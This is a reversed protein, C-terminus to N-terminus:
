ASFLTCVYGRNKNFQIFSVLDDISHNFNVAGITLQIDSDVSTIKVIESQESGVKGIVIYDDAEFGQSNRIKLITGAAAIKETIYTKTKIGDPLRWSVIM